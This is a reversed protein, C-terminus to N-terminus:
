LRRIDVVPNDHVMSLRSVVSELKDLTVRMYTANAHLLRMKDLMFGVHGPFFVLDGKECASINAGVSRGLMELQQDTDRPCDKGAYNLALQVLASCDLGLATKGGWVYPAHLFMAATQLYDANLSGLPKLHRKYIWGLGRVESFRKEEVGESITVQAGFPIAMGIPARVDPKPYVHSLPVAVSHSPQLGHTSLHESKLFGVYGDSNLQCFAWGNAEDLMSVEEGFFAQTLLPASNNPTKKVDVIGTSVVKSKIPAYREARVRAKLATDALDKRALTTRPDLGQSKVWEFREELDITM